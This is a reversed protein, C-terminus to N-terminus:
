VHNGMPYTNLEFSDTKVPDIKIEWQEDSYKKGRVNNISFFVKGYEEETFIRCDAAALLAENYIRENEPVDIFVTFIGRSKIIEVLSPLFLNDSALLPFRTRLLATNDFLVSDIKGEPRLLEKTKLDEEAANNLYKDIIYLFEEPFINGMRFNIVTISIDYNNKDTIIKKKELDLNQKVKGNKYYNEKDQIIKLKRQELDKKPRGFNFDWLKNEKDIVNDSSPIPRLLDRWKEGIQPMLAAKGLTIEQEEALSLILKRKGPQFDRCLLINLGLAFKHGGFPGSIVNFTDSYVAIKESNDNPNFISTNGIPLSEDDILIEEATKENPLSILKQPSLRFHTSPYIVFGCREDFKETSKHFPSKIKYNHKGLIHRNYRTKKIEIYHGRYNETQSYELSIVIDALYRSENYFIEDLKLHNNKKELTLLLPISNKRFLEFLNKLQIRTLSSESFASLSDIIFFCKPDEKSIQKFWLIARELQNYRENFIKENRYKADDTINNTLTPLIIRQKILTWDACSWNNKELNFISNEIKDSTEKSLADSTKNGTLYDTIDVSEFFNYGTLAQMIFEPNQELSYYFCVWENSILGKAIQLSLTTKGLGSSAELVIVPTLWKGLGSNTELSLPAYFGGNWNVQPVTAAPNEDNQVNKLRSLVNFIFDKPDPSEPCLLIDLERIKTQIINSPHNIPDINIKPVLNVESKYVEFGDSDIILKRENQSYIRNVALKILSIDPIGTEACLMAWTFHRIGIVTSDLKYIAADVLSIVETNDLIPEKADVFSYSTAKGKEDFLNAKLSFLKLSDSRIELFASKYDLGLEILSPRWGILLKNIKDLENGCQALDSPNKEWQTKHINSILKICKGTTDFQISAIYQRWSKAKIKDIVTPDLFSEITREKINDVQDCLKLLTALWKLRVTGDIVEPSFNITSNNNLPKEIIVRNDNITNNENLGQSPMEIKENSITDSTKVGSLDEESAFYTTRIFCNNSRCDHCETDDLKNWGHACVIIAIWNAIDKDPIKLDFWKEQIFCSSKVWHDNKVGDNGPIAKGIDHYIIAILLIFIESSTLSEKVPISIMKDIHNEINNSHQIGTYTNYEGVPMIPNVRYTAFKELDSFTSFLKTEGANQRKELIERLKLM